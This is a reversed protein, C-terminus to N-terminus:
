SSLTRQPLAIDASLGISLSGSWTPRLLDVYFVREKGECEVCDTALELSNHVMLGTSLLTMRSKMGHRTGSTFPGIDDLIASAVAVPIRTEPSGMLSYLRGCRAEDKQFHEGMLELSRDLPTAVSVHKLCTGIHQQGSTMITLARLQFSTRQEALHRERWPRRLVEQLLSRSARQTEVVRISRSLRYM